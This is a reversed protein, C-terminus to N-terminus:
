KMRCCHTTFIETMCCCYIIRYMFKMNWLSLVGTFDNVLIETALRLTPRDRM